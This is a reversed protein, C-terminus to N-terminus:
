CRLFNSHTIFHVMLSFFKQKKRMKNINEMNGWIAYEINNNHIKNPDEIPICKNERLILRNEKDKTNELISYKNFRNTTNKWKTIINSLLNNNLPFNYKKNNYLKKFEEKYLRRDYITSQKM